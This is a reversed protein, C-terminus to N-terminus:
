SIVGLDCLISLSVFLAFLATVYFCTALAAEVVNEDCVLAAFLLVGLLISIFVM